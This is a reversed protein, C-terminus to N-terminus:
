VQENEHRDPLRKFDTHAAVNELQDLNIELLMCEFCVCEELRHTAADIEWGCRRQKWSSSAEKQEM